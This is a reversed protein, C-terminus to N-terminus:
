LRTGRVQSTPGQHRSDGWNAQVPVRRHDGVLHRAQQAGRRERGFPGSRGAADPDGAAAHMAKWSMLPLVPAQKRPRLRERNQARWVKDIRRALNCATEDPIRKNRYASALATLTLRPDHGADRRAVVLAGIDLPSLALISLSHELCWRIVDGLEIGYRLRSLQSLRGVVFLEATELTDGKLM